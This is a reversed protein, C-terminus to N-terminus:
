PAWTFKLTFTDSADCSCQSRHAVRLKYNYGNRGLSMGNGDTDYPLTIRTEATTNKYDSAAVGDTKRIEYYMSHADNNQTVDVWGAVGTATAKSVTGTYQGTKAKFSLSDALATSAVVLCLILLISLFKKM